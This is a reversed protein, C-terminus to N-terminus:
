VANDILQFLKDNRVYCDGYGPPCGLALLATAADRQDYLSTIIGAAVNCSTEQPTTPTGTGQPTPLGEMTDLLRENEAPSRMVASMNSQSTAQGGCCTTDKQAQRADGVSSFRSLNEVSVPLMNSDRPLHVPVATPIPAMPMHKIHGEEATFPSSDELPMPGFMKEVMEDPLRLFAQVDESPVGHRALLLRLRDNERAVQRAAYQMQLTAESDRREYAELQKRM